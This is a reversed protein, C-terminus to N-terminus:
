DGYYLIFPVVNGDVLSALSVTSDSKIPVVCLAGINDGHWVINVLKELSELM